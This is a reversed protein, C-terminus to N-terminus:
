PLVITDTAVPRILINTPSPAGRFAELKKEATNYTADYTLMAPNFCGARYIPAAKKTGSGPTTVAIVTIGIAATTDLVAPIIDGNGDLGVVTRAAITQSAAYTMDETLLAPLHGTILGEPAVNITDSGQAPIGALASYDPPTITAM